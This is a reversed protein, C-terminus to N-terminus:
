PKDKHFGLGNQFVSLALVLNRAQSYDLCVYSDQETSTFAPFRAIFGNGTDELLCLNHKPTSMQEVVSGNDLRWVRSVYGDLTYDTSM